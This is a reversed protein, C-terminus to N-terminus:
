YCTTEQKMGKGRSSGDEEEGGECEGCAQVWARKRLKGLGRELAALQQQPQGMQSIRGLAGQRHKQFTFTFCIPNGYFHDGNGKSQPNSCITRKKLTQGKSSLLM